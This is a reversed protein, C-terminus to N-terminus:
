GIVALRTWNSELLRGRASRNVDAFPIDGNGSSWSVGAPAAEQLALSPLTIPVHWGQDSDPLALSPSRVTWDTGCLQGVSM